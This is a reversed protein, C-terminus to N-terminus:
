TREGVPEQIVIVKRTGRVKGVERTEFLGKWDPHREMIHRAVYAHFDNNLRYGEFKAVDVGRRRCERRVEAIRYRLLEWILRMSARQGSKLFRAAYISAISHARRLVQRSGPLEKWQDFQQQHTEGFLDLQAANM